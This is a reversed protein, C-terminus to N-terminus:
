MLTIKLTYAWECPKKGPFNVKIGEDDKKFDVQGHGLLDIKKIKESVLSKITVKQNKPWEM